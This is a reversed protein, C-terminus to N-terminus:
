KIKWNKFRYLNKDDRPIKESAITGLIQFRIPPFNQEYTNNKFFKEVKKGISGYFIPM